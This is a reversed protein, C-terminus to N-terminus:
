TEYKLPRGRNAAYEKEGWVLILHEYQHDCDRLLQPLFAGASVFVFKARSMRRPCTERMVYSPLLDGGASCSSTKFKYKSLM